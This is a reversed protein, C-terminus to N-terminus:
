LHASAIFVGGTTLVLCPQTWCTATHRYVHIHIYTHIYTHICSHIHMRFCHIRRRNDASLVASDLMDCYAQVRPHTHTHTHALIYTHTHIYTYTHTHTHIYTHIYTHINQTFCIVYVYVDCVYLRCVHLCICWV